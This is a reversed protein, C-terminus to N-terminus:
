PSLSSKSLWKKAPASRSALNKCFTFLNVAYKVLQQVRASSHKVHHKLNICPPPSKPRFGFCRVAFTWDAWRPPPPIPPTSPASPKSPAALFLVRVCLHDLSPRLIKVPLTHKIHTHAHLRTVTLWECRFISSNAWLRDKSVHCKCVESSWVHKNVQAAIIKQKIDRRNSSSSFLLILHVDFFVSNWKCLLDPPTVPFEIFHVALM